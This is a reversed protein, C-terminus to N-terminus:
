VFPSIGRVHNEKGGYELFCIKRNFYERQDILAGGGVRAASNNRFLFYSHDNVVIASFGHMAIAGGKIGQNSRFIVTSNEDFVIRGSTLYM